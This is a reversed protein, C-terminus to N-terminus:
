ACRPSVDLPTPTLSVRSEHRGPLGAPLRATLGAARRRTRPADVRRAHRVPSSGIDLRERAVAAADMDCRRRSAGAQDSLRALHPRDRGRGAARGRHGAAAPIRALVVRALLMTVIPISARCPPRWASRCPAARGARLGRQRDRGPHGGAARDALRRAPRRAGESCRAGASAAVTAAARSAVLAWAEARRPPSTSCCSGSASALVAAAIGLMVARPQVGHRTAGSAAGVAVMAVLWAWGSRPHLRACPGALCSLLLPMRSRALAPSPPSSAWAASRCAARVAGGAWAAASAPWRALPSRGSARCPAPQLVALLILLAVLGIAQALGAVTLGSVRRSALGGSFDGAGFAAASGLGFLVGLEVGITERRGERSEVLRTKATEAAM